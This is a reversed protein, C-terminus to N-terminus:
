GHFVLVAGPGRGTASAVPSGNRAHRKRHIVLDGITAGAGKAREDGTVARHNTDAAGSAPHPHVLENLQQLHSAAVGARFQDLEGRAAIQLQPRKGIWERFVEDIVQM